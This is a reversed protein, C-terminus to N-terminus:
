RFWRVQGPLLRGAGSQDVGGRVALQDGMVARLELLAIHDQDPASGPTQAGVGGLERQAAAGNRHTHHGAWLLGLQAPAHSSFQDDVPGGLAVLEPLVLVGLVLRLPAPEAGPDPLEGTALVRVDDELVRAPLGEAHANEDGLTPTGDDGAGRGASVQVL